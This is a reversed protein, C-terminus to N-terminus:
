KRSPWYAGKFTWPQKEPPGASRSSRTNTTPQTTPETQEPMPKAAAGNAAASPDEEQVLEQECGPVLLKNNRKYIAVAMNTWADLWQTDPGEAPEAAKAAKAARAAWRPLAAAGREREAQAAAEAPQKGKAPRKGEAAARRKKKKKQVSPPLRRTGSPSSSPPTSLMQRDSETPSLCLPPTQTRPELLPQRMASSSPLSLTHTAGATRRRIHWQVEAKEEEEHEQQGIAQERDLRAWEREAKLYIGICHINETKEKESGSADFDLVRDIHVVIPKKNHQSAKVNVRGLMEIVTFTKCFIHFKPSIGPPPNPYYIIVQDGPTFTRYKTKKDYYDEQRDRKEELNEKAVKHAARSIEYMDSVYSIDYFMQPKKIDFYPLRPNHAFTLFFPSDGMARHVYCSYSLMMLPLLDEWDMHPHTDTMATVYKIMSRNYSEARSNTQPHYPSTRRKDADWLACLRNVLENCFEKEQDSLMVTPASFRCFWREFLVKAVQDETKNPIAALEVYKTFADTMVVVYHNGAASTKLPGYLDIHLREIPSSCISMSLVGAKARLKAKVRQCLPCRHVFASIDSTMGPRYYGLRVRDITMTEGRHGGDGSAQAAEMDLQRLSLPAWVAMTIRTKTKMKYWLVNDVLLCHNSMTVVWDAKARDRPLVSNTLYEKVMKTRKNKDQEKRLDVGITSELDRRLTALPLRAVIARSPIEGDDENASDQEEEDEEEARRYAPVSNDEATRRGSRTVVCIPVGAHTRSLADVVTNRLGEKYEIVFNFKLMLLQLNNLRKKHVTSMTELPRHNICLMFQKPPTLYTDFYDIGWCAAAKELLFAPYNKEHDKLGRSAYAVVQETKNIQEQLLFAGMGVAASETGTLADTQLNFRGERNPNVV